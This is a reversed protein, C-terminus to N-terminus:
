GVDSGAVGVAGGGDLEVDGGARRERQDATGDHIGIGPEGFLVCARGVVPVGCGYTTPHRGPPAETSGAGDADPAADRHPLRGAWGSGTSSSAGNGTSVTTCPRSGTMGAFAPMWHAPPVTVIVFEDPFPVLAPFSRIKTGESLKWDVKEVTGIDSQNVGHRGAPGVKGAM